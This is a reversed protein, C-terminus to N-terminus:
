LWQRVTQLIEDLGIASVDGRYVLLVWGYVLLLLIGAFLFVGLEIKRMFRLEPTWIRSVSGFVPFGTLQRLIRQDYIVPRLQSLFFALALGIGGAVVLVFSSFLVRNPGAPALPVRPPDIIKFKVEDGTQGAEESLKASELRAVLTNYNKKTVEYDRNLAKAQAEIEPVTDVMRKLEDVRTQYVEVRITISAVNAEVESLVVKLQQYVPNKELSQSQPIAVRAATELDKQRQQEYTKITSRAAKVEPHRETYQLLLQDLRTQLRQIREDLPHSVQATLTESVFGFVPQEGRVQRRLEDRRNLAEKLVLKAETLQNQMSQLREFYGKGTGPLLKYNKRQFIKIREEAALLRKEYETIQQKLFKQAVDSEERTESLTSEVFITLLSQVVQKAKEPDRHQYSITYLNERRTSGLTIEKALTDLLKEMNAPTKANIDLDSMRAVTEMNPRSLLTRTMLQLRQKVDSQVTLGKLLPRLMSQTDVYVRTSAKYTDPMKAIFVWGALAIVWATAVAYWRYRWIGRLYTLLQQLIEQIPM